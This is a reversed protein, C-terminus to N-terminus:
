ILLINYKLQLYIIVNLIYTTDQGIANNVNYSVQLVGGGGGKKM